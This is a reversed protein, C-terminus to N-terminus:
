IWLGRDPAKKKTKNEIIDHFVAVEVYITIIVVLAYAHHTDPAVIALVLDSPKIVRFPLSITREIVNAALTFPRYM